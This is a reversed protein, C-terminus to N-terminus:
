KEEQRQHPGHLRRRGGGNQVPDVRKPTVILTGQGTWTGTTTSSYSSGIGREETSSPMPPPRKETEGITKEDVFPSNNYTSTCGLGPKICRPKV